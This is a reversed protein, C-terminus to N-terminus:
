FLSLLHIEITPRHCHVLRDNQGRPSTDIFPLGEKLINCGENGMFMKYNLQRITCLTVEFIGVVILGDSFLALSDNYLLTCVTSSNKFVLLSWFIMADEKLSPFTRSVHNHFVLCM